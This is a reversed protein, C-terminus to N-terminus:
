STTISPGITTVTNENEIVDYDIILIIIFSPRIAAFTQQHDTSDLIDRESDIGFQGTVPCIGNHCHSQTKKKCLTHRNITTSNTTSCLFVLNGCNV